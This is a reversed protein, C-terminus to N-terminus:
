AAPPWVGPNDDIDACDTTMCAVLLRPAANGRELMLSGKGRDKEETRDSPYWGCTLDGDM